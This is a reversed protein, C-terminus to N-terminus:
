IVTVHIENTNKTEYKNYIDKFLSAICMLVGLAVCSFIIMVLIYGSNVWESDCITEIITNNSICNCYIGDYLDFNKDRHYTYNNPRCILGCESKKFNYNCNAM